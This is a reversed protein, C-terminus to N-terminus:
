ESNTENQLKVFKKWKERISLGNQIDYCYGTFDTAELIIEEISKVKNGLKM